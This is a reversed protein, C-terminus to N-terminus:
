ATPDRIEYCQLTYSAQAPDIDLVERVQHWKSEIFIQDDKQPEVSVLGGILLIKVDTEPIGAQAAYFASFMERIGQCDYTTATNNIEDGFSDVGSAGGPRRLTGSRLQGSFGSAIATRIQDLPSAM